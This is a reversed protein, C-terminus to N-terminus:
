RTSLADKNTVANHLPTFGAKLSSKDWFAKRNVESDLNSEKDLIMYLAEPNFKAALHLTNAATIWSRDVNKCCHIPENIYEVFDDTKAIIPSYQRENMLMELIHNKSMLVAVQLVNFVVRVLHAKRLETDDCEDLVLQQMLTASALILNLIICPLIYMYMSQCIFRFYSGRVGASIMQKPQQTIPRKPDYQHRLRVKAHFRPFKTWDM